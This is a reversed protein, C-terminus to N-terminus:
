RMNVIPSEAVRNEAIETSLSAPHFRFYDVSGPLTRLGVVFQLRHESHVYMYTQPYNKEHQM